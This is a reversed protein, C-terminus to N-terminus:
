LLLQHLLILKYHFHLLVNCGTSIKHSRVMDYNPFYWGSDELLAFTLRSYVPNQTHVTGTMAENQFLRKEWHTLSTGDGGQDELEAGELTSCNFQRRVEEVVKPTVVLTVTKKM